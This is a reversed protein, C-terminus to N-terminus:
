IELNGGVVATRDPPLHFVTTRNPENASLWLFIRRRWRPLSPVDGATLRLSSLFYHAEEPDLDMEAGKDKPWALAAPVLQSDNFGVRNSIHIIGDDIYGLDDVTARDVHRFQPVNANREHLVHYYDVTQRLALPTTSANPHPFV